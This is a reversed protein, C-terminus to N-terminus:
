PQGQPAPPMAYPSISLVCWKAAEPGPVWKSLPTIYTIQRHLVDGTYEEAQPDWRRLTLVDGVHYPRDCRRVEHTKDGRAVADYSEPWTKLDHEMPGDNTRPPM